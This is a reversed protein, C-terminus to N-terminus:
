PLLTNRPPRPLRASSATTAPVGRGLLGFYAVIRAAAERAPMTTTDIRLVDDREIQPLKIQGEDLWGSLTDVDNVKDYAVRGPEVVRRLLEERACTLEVYRVAGRGSVAREVDTLFGATPSWSSFSITFILGPVDYHCAYDFVTLWIEERLRANADTRSRFVSGVLDVTLHNHFLGFGTRRSLAAGVTLKGVAPPGALIVLEV